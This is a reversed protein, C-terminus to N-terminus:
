NKLKAGNPLSNICLWIVVSMMEQKYSTVEPTHTGFGIYVRQTQKSASLLELKVSSLMKGQVECTFLQKNIKM